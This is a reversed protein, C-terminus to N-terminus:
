RPVLELFVRLFTEDSLGEFFPVNMSYYQGELSGIDKIDGTGPYFGFDYRHFSMTLIKKSFEFANQVGDGLIKINTAKFLLLFNHRVM